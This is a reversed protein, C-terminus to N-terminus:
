SRKEWEVAAWAAAKEILRWVNDADAAVFGRSEWFMADEGSYVYIRHGAGNLPTLQMRALVRM